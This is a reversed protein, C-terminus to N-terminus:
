ISGHERHWLEMADACNWAELSKEDTPPYNKDVQFKDMLEPQKSIAIWLRVLIPAIPDRALLVFMPEDPDAKTYCDFRGPNNKTGM